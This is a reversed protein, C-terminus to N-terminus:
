PVRLITLEDGAVLLRGDGLFALGFLNQPAAYHAIRRPREPRSVDYISIVQALGQEMVCARGNRLVLRLPSAVLRLLPSKRLSGIETFHAIDNATGTLRYTTLGLKDANVLLEGEFATPTWYPIALQLSLELRDRPSLGPVPILALDCTNPIREGPHIVVVRTLFGARALDVSREVVPADPNSIDVTILRGQSKTSQNPVQYDRAQIYLKDGLVAMCEAIANPYGEKSLDLRNLV